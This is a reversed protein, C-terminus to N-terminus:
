RILTFEVGSIAAFNGVGAKPIITGSIRNNATPLFAGPLEFSSSQDSGDSYPSLPGFRHIGKSDKIAVYQSIMSKRAGELNLNGFLLRVKYTENRLLNEAQFEFQNQTGRSPILSVTSYVSAPASNTPLKIKLAPNPNSYNTLESAHPAFNYVTWGASNSAVSLRIPPAIFSYIADAFYGVDEARVGSLISPGLQNSTGCDYLGKEDWIRPFIACNATDRPANSVKYASGIAETVIGLLVPTDQDNSRLFVGGGSDGVAVGACDTGIGPIYPNFLWTFGGPWSREVKIFGWRLGDSGSGPIHYRAQVQGNTGRLAGHAWGSSSLGYVKGLQGPSVPQKPIRSYFPLVERVRLLALDPQGPDNLCPVVQIVEHAKGTSDYFPHNGKGNATHNATIVWNPAIAVGLFSTGSAENFFHGEENGHAHCYTYDVLNKKDDYEETLFPFIIGQTRAASLTFFSLLSLRIWGGSWQRNHIRAKM